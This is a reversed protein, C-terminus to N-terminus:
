KTKLLVFLVEAFFVLVTVAFAFFMRKPGAPKQPVTASQLTTFAPTQEIVKAQSKQLQQNLATYINYQLQMDNELDEIKSQVSPLSVDTNADSYVAYLRRVKEYKRKSEAWLKKTYDLELRAKSTRYDTIFIQLKNKAAEALTAAIVPDQDTASISIADSKKDINCQINKKILKSVLNQQKTLHFTNVKSNDKQTKNRGAFAKKLGEFIRSWWPTKQYKLLYNYYTTNIKNDKSKVKVNFMSTTFDVSEMLDPYLEPTIADTVSGYGMNLDLGFSSALSSLSGTNLAQIEPALEVTCKYYRPVCFVLLYALIATLPLSIVFLKKYTKLKRFIEVFDIQKIKDNEM